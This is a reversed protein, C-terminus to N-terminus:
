VINFELVATVVLVAREPLPLVELVELAVAVAVPKKEQHLIRLVAQL